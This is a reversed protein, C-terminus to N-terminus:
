VLGIDYKFSMAHKHREDYFDYVKITIVRKLPKPFFPIQTRHPNHQTKKQQMIFNANQINNEKAM